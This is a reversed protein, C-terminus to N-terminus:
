IMKMAILLLVTLGLIVWFLYTQLDGSHLKKLRQSLRHLLSQAHEYLDFTREKGMKYLPRLIGLSEITHYFYTGPIRVEEDEIPMGGVFIEGEKLSKVNGRLYIAAGFLLSLILLFTAATPNWLGSAHIAIGSEQFHTGMVTKSIFDLTFQAFIGLFICLVALVISPVLMSFGVEKPEGIEKPRGGLFVSHLVKMFSALTLASGFMAAILFVPWVVGGVDITGQYIMWKSAFGNLPPVGSISLAAILCTLFTVPMPKALGGLKELKDTHTRYKVSGSCLFLCSKYIANNLMHFLGGVIGIATGTGIGLIMYGVQSISHFALLKNLNKQILAMMVAAVITITGISMMVMKMGESVIFFDLSIRILLYIGLLKDLAAPMFAMLSAPVVEATDPIWTHFPMAGAKGLAGVMMFIFACIPLLGKVPISIDSMTLKGVLHWILIVGFSMIFDTGGLIIFSKLASNNAKAGSLNILLFLVFPILGWFILLVILNNTLVSGNALGVMWLMYAHYAKLNKQQRIQKVAYLAILLGFFSCLLVIFGNLPDSLLDIDFRLSSISFGAAQLRLSGARLILISSVTTLLMGVLTAAERIRQWPTFLCISGLLIPLLVPVLLISHM